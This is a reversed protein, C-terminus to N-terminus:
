GKLLIPVVDIRLGRYEQLDSEGLETMLAEYELPNMLIRDVGSTGGQERIMEDLESLISNKQILKM